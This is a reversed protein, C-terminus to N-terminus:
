NSTMKPFMIIIENSVKSILSINYHNKFSIKTTFDNWFDNYHWSFKNDNFNDNFYIGDFPM